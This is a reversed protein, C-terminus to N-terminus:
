DEDADLADNLIDVVLGARLDILILDSGVIRYEVDVPLPPLELLLAPWMWAGLRWDYPENVVPRIAGPARDARMARVVDKLAVNESAATAAIIHRFVAAPGATFIEGSRAFPRREQMAHRLVDRLIVLDEPDGFIRDSPMGIEDRLLCYARVNANFEAIAGLDAASLTAREHVAPAVDCHEGSTVGALSLTLILYGVM